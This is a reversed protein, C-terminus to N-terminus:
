FAMLHRENCGRLFICVRPQVALDLFHTVLKFHPSGASWNWEVSTVFYSTVTAPSLSVDFLDECFADMDKRKMKGQEYNAMKPLWFVTFRYSWCLMFDGSISLGTQEGARGVEGSNGVPNWQGSLDLDGAAWSRRLGVAM